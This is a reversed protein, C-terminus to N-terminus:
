NQVQLFRSTEDLFLIGLKVAICIIIEMRATVSINFSTLLVVDKIHFHKIIEM